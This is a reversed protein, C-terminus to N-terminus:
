RNPPLSMSRVLEHTRCKYVTSEPMLNFFHWSIAHKELNTPTLEEQTRALTCPSRMYGCHHSFVYRWSMSCRRVLPVTLDSVIDLYLPVQPHVGVTKAMGVAVQRGEPDEPTSDKFVPTLSDLALTMWHAHTGDDTPVHYTKGTVNPYEDPM